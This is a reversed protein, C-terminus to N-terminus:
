LCLDHDNSRASLTVFFGQYSNLNILEAPRKNKVNHSTLAKSGTLTEEEHSVPGSPEEPLLKHTVVPQNPFADLFITFDVPHGM